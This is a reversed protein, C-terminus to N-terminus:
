QKPEVAPAEKGCGVLLQAYLAPLEPGEYGPRSSPSPTDLCCMTRFATRAKASAGDRQCDLTDAWQELHPNGENECKFNHASNPHEDIMVEGDETEEQVWHRWGFCKSGFELPYVIKALPEGGCPNEFDEDDPDGPDGLYEWYGVVIKEGDGPPYEADSVVTDGHASPFIQMTVAPVGNIGQYEAAPFCDAHEDEALVPLALVVSALLILSVVPLLRIKPKM